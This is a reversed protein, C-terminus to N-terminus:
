HLGEIQKNELAKVLAEENVIPGRGANILYTSKMLKFQETDIM